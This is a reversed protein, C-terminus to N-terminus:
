LEALRPRGSKRTIMPSSANNQTQQLVQRKFVDINCVRTLHHQCVRLNKFVHKSPTQCFHCLPAYLCDFCYRQFISKQSYCSPCTHILCIHPTHSLLHFCEECVLIMKKSLRKNQKSSAYVGHPRLIFCPDEVHLTM